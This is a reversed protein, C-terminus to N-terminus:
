VTRHFHLTAPLATPLNPLLDAGQAVRDGGRARHKSNALPNRNFSSFQPPCTGPTPVPVLPSM